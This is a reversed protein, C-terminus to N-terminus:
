PSGVMGCEMPTIKILSHLAHLSGRPQSLMFLSVNGNAPKQYGALRDLQVSSIAPSASDPEAPSCGSLSYGTPFEDCRHAPPTAALGSQRYTGVDSRYIEQHRLFSM